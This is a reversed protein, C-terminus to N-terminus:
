THTLSVCKMTYDLFRIELTSAYPDVIELTFPFVPQTAVVEVIMLSKDFTVILKEPYDRPDVGIAGNKPNCKDDVIMPFLRDDYVEVLFNLPTFEELEQGFIDAGTVTLTHQGLSMPKRPTWIAKEGAVTTTGEADSVAINVGAMKKSFVVTIPFNGKISDGENIIYKVIRETPVRSGLIVYLVKPPEQDIDEGCGSIFGLLNIALFLCFLRKITETERM